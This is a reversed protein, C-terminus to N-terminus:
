SGGCKNECEKLTEFNNENGDCGGYIFRECKMSTTNHFFRPILAECPGVDPPLSCVELCEAFVPCPPILCPATKLRCTQKDTCENCPDTCEVVPPCPARVCQVEKLSCIHDEPCGGNNLSCDPQCFGEENNFVECRFGDPCPVNACPSVALLCNHSMFYVCYTMANTLM